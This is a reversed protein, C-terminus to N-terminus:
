RTKELEKARYQEWRKKQMEITKADVTAYQGPETHGGKAYNQLYEVFKRDKLMAQKKKMEEEQQKIAKKVALKQLISGVIPMKVITPHKMAYEVSPTFIETKRMEQRATEQKRQATEIAQIIKHDPVIQIQTKKTETINQRKGPESKTGTNNERKQPESKTGTNNEGKEPESKTGTNNEGKEPENKTGINNERKEPEKKNEQKSEQKPQESTKAQNNESVSQIKGVDDLGVKKGNRIEEMPVLKIEDWQKGAM